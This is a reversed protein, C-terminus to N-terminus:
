NTRHKVGGLSTQSKKFLIMMYLLLGVFVVIIVKMSVDFFAQMPNVVVLDERVTPAAVDYYYGRLFDYVAAKDYHEHGDEKYWCSPCAQESPWKVALLGDEEKVRSTVENHTEWMWVAANKAEDYGAERRSVDVDLVLDCRHLACSDYDHLFHVQCVECPFFNSVFSRLVEAFQEGGVLGRSDPDHEKSSFRTRYREAVGLSTIHNLFWVGCTYGNTPTPCSGSWLIQLPDNNSYVGSWLNPPAVGMNVEGKGLLFRRWEGEAGLNGGRQIQREVGRSVFELSDRMDRLVTSGPIDDRPLTNM